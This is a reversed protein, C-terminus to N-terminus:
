PTDCRKRIEAAGDNTIILRGDPSMRVMLLRTWSAGEGTFDAKLDISGDSKPQVATVTGVSEHFILRAPTIELETAAAKDSCDDGM